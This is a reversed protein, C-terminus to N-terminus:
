DAHTPVTAFGQVFREFAAVGRDFHAPAAIYYLDHVCDDKKMVWVDFKKPVGDLKASLRTHMAERGDFPVVTQELIERDTFGLFLHQTLSALPVDGGDEHCRTDVAITGGDADRYALAAHSIEVRQWGEPPPAVRFAFGEGHYVSGDFASAGCGTITLALASVLLIARRLFPADHRGSRM